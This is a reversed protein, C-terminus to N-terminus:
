SGAYRRVVGRYMDVLEPGVVSPAYRNRVLAAGNQGMAARLKGEELLRTMASALQKLDHEVVIGAQHSEVDPWLDVGRTVIVPLQAAMAEVAAVGFNEQYSPLVFVAASKLLHEKEEGTVHGTFQVHAHMGLEDALRRLHREYRPDGSGAIVLRADPRSQRILAFARLLLELGKVPDLRGLFLYVPERRDAEFRSPPAEYPLPIVMAHPPLKLRSAKEREKETTFHLAAAGAVTQSEVLAYYARKSFAKGHSFTYTSLTGLPRLIYPKKRRRAIWACGASIPNFAAHIHLVDYRPAARWIWAWLQPSLNWTRTGFEPFMQMEVDKPLSAQLTNLWERTMGFSTTAIDIEISPDTQKVASCLEVLARAPGGSGVWM